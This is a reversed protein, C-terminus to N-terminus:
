KYSKAILSRPRFCTAINRLLGVTQELFPVIKVNFIVRATLDVDLTAAAPRCYRKLFKGKMLSLFRGVSVM